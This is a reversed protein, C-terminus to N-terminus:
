PINVRMIQQLKTAYKFETDVMEKTVPVGMNGELERKYHRLVQSIKPRRLLSPKHPTQIYM